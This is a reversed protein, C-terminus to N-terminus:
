IDDDDTAPSSKLAAIEDIPALQKYSRSARRFFRIIRLLTFIAWVFFLVGLGINIQQAYNSAYLKEYKLIPYVLGLLGCLTGLYYGFLVKMYRYLVAEIIVYSIISFVAFLAFVFIVMNGVAVFFNNGFGLGLSVAVVMTGFGTAIQVLNVIVTKLQVTGSLAPHIRALLFKSQKLSQYQTILTVTFALMCVYHLFCMFAIMSPLRFSLTLTFLQFTDMCLIFIFCSASDGMYQIDRSWQNLNIGQEKRLCIKVWCVLYYIAVSLFVFQMFIVYITIQLQDMFIQPTFEHMVNYDSLNLQQFDIIHNYICPYGLGPFNMAILHVTVNVFTLIMCIISISWTKTNITDVHSSAM